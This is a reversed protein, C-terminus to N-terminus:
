IGIFTPGDLRESWYKPYVHLLIYLNEGYLNISTVPKKKLKAEFNQNM